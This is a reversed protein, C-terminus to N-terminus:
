KGKKAVEVAENLKDQKFGIFDFVKEGKVYLMVYPTGQVEFKESLDPNDDVDCTILTFGNEKCQKELAPKLAKCPGCWSAHFDVFTPTNKHEAILKDFDGEEEKFVITEM